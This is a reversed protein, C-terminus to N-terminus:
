VGHREKIIKRLALLHKCNHVVIGNAVFHEAGQVQLDYVDKAGVAVIRTIPQATVNDKLLSAFLVTQHNHVHCQALWKKFGNKSFSKRPLAPVAHGLYAPLRTLNHLFDKVETYTFSVPKDIGLLRVRFLHEPYKAKLMKLSADNNVRVLVSLKKPFTAVERHAHTRLRQHWGELSLELREERSGSSPKDYADVEYKFRYKGICGLLKKRSSPPVRVLFPSNNSTGGRVSSYVGLGRLLHQVDRALGRSITGYTASTANFHGDGLFLGYLLSIRFEISATLYEKPLRQKKSSTFVFGLAAAVGKIDTLQIHRAKPNKYSPDEDFAKRYNKEFISRVVPEVPAYGYEDAEAILLGAVVAEPVLSAVRSYSPPLVQFIPDGVDLEKATVWSLVDDKLSLIKHDETVEVSLGGRVFIRLLPKHGTHECALVTKWGDLTLAQDGVVVNQVLIEGNATTVLTNKAVCLGVKNSPNTETSPEGNGYIVDSAGAQTNAWEHRYMYDPCSCSVKVNLKRDLFKISSVYKNKDKAQRLKMGITYERPTYTKAVATPIKNKDFGTKYGVVRVLRANAKRMKDSSNVLKALKM